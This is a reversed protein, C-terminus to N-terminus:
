RGRYHEQIKQILEEAEFGVHSAFKLANIVQKKALDKCEEKTEESIPFTKHQYNEVIGAIKGSSKMMHVVSHNLGFIFQDATGSEAQLTEYTKKDFRYHTDILSMIEKLTDM